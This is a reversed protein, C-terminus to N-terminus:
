RYNSYGYSEQQRAICVSKHEWWRETEFVWDPIVGSLRNNRLIPPNGTFDDEWVEFPLKTIDNDSCDITLQEKPITKM